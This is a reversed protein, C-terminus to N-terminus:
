REDPPVWNPDHINEDLEQCKCTLQSILEIQTDTGEYQAVAMILSIVIPDSTGCWYFQEHDGEMWWTTVLIDSDLCGVLRYFLYSPLLQLREQEVRIRYKSHNTRKM